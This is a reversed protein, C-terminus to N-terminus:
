LLFFWSERRVQPTVERKWIMARSAIHCAANPPVLALSNASYASVRKAFLGGVWASLLGAQIHPCRSLPVWIPRGELWVRSSVDLSLVQVRLMQGLDALTLLHGVGNQTGLVFGCGWASLALGPLYGAQETNGLGRHAVLM